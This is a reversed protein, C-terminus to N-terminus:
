PLSTQNFPAKSNRVSTNMFPTPLPPKSTVQSSVTKISSAMPSTSALHYTSLPHPMHHTCPIASAAHPPEVKLQLPPIGTNNPQAAALLTPGTTPMASPMTQRPRIKNVNDLTLSSIHTSISSTFTSFPTTHPLIHTVSEYSRNLPLVSTNMTHLHFPITM